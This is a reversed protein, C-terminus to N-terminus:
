ELLRRFAGKDVSYCLYYEGNDAIHINVTDDRVETVLGDEILYNNDDLALYLDSVLLGKKVHITEPNVITKFHVTADNIELVNM